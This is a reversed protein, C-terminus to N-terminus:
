EADPVGWIRVDRGSVGWLEKSKEGWAVAVAEGGEEFRALEEWSKHAHVRVGDSAAVALLQAGFDYRVDRLAVGDGLAISHAVAQKRLDWIAVAHAGDPAALSYGNESFSLASIPAPGQPADLAAAVDATRFDVVRLAGGATGLALITGDPHFAQATFADAGPNPRPQLMSVVVTSM